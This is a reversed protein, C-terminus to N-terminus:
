AQDHHHQHHNRHYHHCRHHHHHHLHGPRWHTTLLIDAGSGPEKRWLCRSTLIQEEQLRHIGIMENDIRFQKWIFKFSFVCRSTTWCYIIYYLMQPTQCCMPKGRMKFRRFNCHPPWIQGLVSWKNCHQVLIHTTVLQRLLRLASANFYTASMLSDLIGRAM